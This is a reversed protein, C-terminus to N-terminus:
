YVSDLLSLDLLDLAFDRPIHAIVALFECVLRSQDLASVISVCDSARLLNSSLPGFVAFVIAVLLSYFM